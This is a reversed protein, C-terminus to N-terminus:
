RLTEELGKFAQELREVSDKEQQLLRETQKEIVRAKSDLKAVTKDWDSIVGDFRRRQQTTRVMLYIVFAIVAWLVYLTWQLQPSVVGEKEEARPGLHKVDLGSGAADIGVHQGGAGNTLVEFTLLEGVDIYELEVEGSDARAVLRVAIHAARARSIGKPRLELIAAPPSVTFQVTQRDITRNGANELEVTVLNLVRAPKGKYLVSVRGSAARAQQVIDPASTIRWGLVQRPSRLYDVYLKAPIGLLAAVVVVVIGVILPRWVTRARDHQAESM